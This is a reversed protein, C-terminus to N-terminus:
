AEKDGGNKRAADNALGKMRQVVEALIFPPLRGKTPEVHGKYVRDTFNLAVSCPKKLRTVARTADDDPIPVQPDSPRCSTSIAVLEVNEADALLHDPTLVVAPRAKVEGRGPTMPAYVIMGQSLSGTYSM